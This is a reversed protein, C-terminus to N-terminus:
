LRLVSSKQLASAPLKHKIANWDWVTDIGPVKDAFFELFYMLGAAGIVWPHTLMQLGPPLHIAGSKAMLGLALMAAYLNVGSAWATGMTLAISGAIPATADM